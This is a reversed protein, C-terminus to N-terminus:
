PVPNLKTLGLSSRSLIEAITEFFRPAFKNKSVLINHYEKFQYDSGDPYKLGLSVDHITLESDWIEYFARYGFGSLAEQFDSFQQASLVECLM